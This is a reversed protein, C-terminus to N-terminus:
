SNRDADCFDIQSIALAREEDFPNLANILMVKEYLPLDTKKIQTLVVKQQELLRTLQTGKLLYNASSYWIGQKLFLLNGISCDSVYGNNVIIVEENQLINLSDFRKRDSYKLHYDWNEVEVCRFRQIQKPHYPFFKVEFQEANYDIRCRIKGHQFETPVQLIQVLSFTPECGFFARVAREFRQQHYPLNQIQGDIISLTEFLPFQYM